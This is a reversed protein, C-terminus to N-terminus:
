PMQFNSPLVGGFRKAIRSQAAAGLQLGYLHVLQMEFKALGIAKEFLDLAADFNHRQVELTGLIEYAFQTLYPSNYIPCSFM